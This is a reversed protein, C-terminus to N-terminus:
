GPTLIRTQAQARALKYPIRRSRLSIRKAFRDTGSLIVLAFAERRARFRRAM